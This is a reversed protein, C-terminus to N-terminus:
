CEDELVLYPLHIELYYLNEVEFLLLKEKIDVRAESLKEMHPVM